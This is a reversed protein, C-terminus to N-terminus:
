GKVKLVFQFVTQAGIREAWIQGEHAEIISRCIALGMGTGETRTTFFSEFMKTRLHEPFGPGRDSVSILVEGPARMSTGIELLKPFETEAMAEMGNTFLNM